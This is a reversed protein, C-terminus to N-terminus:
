AYPPVGFPFSSVDQGRQFALGSVRYVPLGSSAANWTGGGDITKQVGDFVAAYVTNAAAPDAALAYVLSLNLGGSALAWTRAADLSSTRVPSPSTTAGDISARSRKPECRFLAPSAVPRTARFFLACSPQPSSM